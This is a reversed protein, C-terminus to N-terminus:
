QGPIGGPVNPDYPPTQTPWSEKGDLTLYLTVPTWAEIEREVQLSWNPDIDSTITFQWQGAALKQASTNFVIVNDFSDPAQDIPYTETFSSVGSELQTNPTQLVGAVTYSHDVIPVNWQGVKFYTTLKGPWLKHYQPLCLYCGNWIGGPSPEKYAALAQADAPVFVAWKGSIWNGYACPLKHYIYTRTNGCFMPVKPNIGPQEDAFGEPTAVVAGWMEIRDPTNDVNTISTDVGFLNANVAQEGVGPLSSFANSVLGEVAREIAGVAISGAVPFLFQIADLAASSVQVAFLQGVKIGQTPDIYLNMAQSLTGDITVDAFTGSVEVAGTMQHDQCTLTVSDITVGDAGPAPAPLTGLQSQILGALQNQVFAFDISLMFDGSFTSPPNAPNTHPQGDASFFVQLEDQAILAGFAFQLNQLLPFKGLGQLTGQLVALYIVKAGDPGTFNIISFDANTLDIALSNPTVALPSTLVITGTVNPTSIESFAIFPVQITVTSDGNLSITPINLYFDYDPLVAPRLFVTPFFSQSFFNAAIFRNIAEGSIQLVFDWSGSFDSM